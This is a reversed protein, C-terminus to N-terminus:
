SLPTRGYKDKSNAKVDDREFLLKFIAEDGRGAAWSLPTRRYIDKVNIDVDNHGLLLKFISEDGRGAAWSLPTRGDTDNNIQLDDRALLLKILAMHGKELIWWLPTYDSKNSMMNVDLDKSAILMEMITEHGGEAAWLFPTKNNYRDKSNVDIDVNTRALLLQVVREHGQGAAYSLPSRGHYGNKLSARVEIDSRDLLLKVILEHGAKAAYLMPTWGYSDRADANIWHNRHSIETLLNWFSHLGFMACLHFGNTNRPYRQSWKGLISKNVWSAQLCSSILAADQLFSLGIQYVLKKEQVSRTQEAWYRAAYDYFRNTKLREQFQDDDICSGRQFRALSLYALCTSAVYQKVPTNWEVLIHELYEQTTYHVLRIIKSEKDITVLGACVSIIDKVDPINNADLEKEDLEVALAHCLEDTTLLRQAYTMWSLVQIALKRDEDLQGKIREIADKYAEGLASEGGAFNKLTILV